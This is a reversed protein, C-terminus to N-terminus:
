RQLDHTAYPGFYNVLVTKKKKPPPEENYDYYYLMGRLGTRIILPRVNEAPPKEPLGVM